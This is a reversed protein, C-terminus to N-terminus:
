EQRCVEPALTVRVPALVAVGLKVAGVPSTLLEFRTKSSVTVSARPAEAASVTVIVMGAGSVVGFLKLKVARLLTSGAVSTVLLVMVTLPMLAPTLMLTVLPASITSPAAKLPLVMLLPCVTATLTVDLLVKPCLTVAVTVMPVALALKTTVVRAPLPLAM